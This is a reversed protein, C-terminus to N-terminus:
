QLGDRLVMPGHLGAPRGDAMSDKLAARQWTNHVLWTRQM